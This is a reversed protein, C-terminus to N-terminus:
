LRASGEAALTPFIIRSLPSEHLTQTRSSFVTLLVPIHARERLDGQYRQHLTQDQPQLGDSQTCASPFAPVSIAPEGYSPGTECPEEASPPEPSAMSVSPKQDLGIKVFFGAALVDNLEVALPQIWCLATMQQAAHKLTAVPTPGNNSKWLDHM